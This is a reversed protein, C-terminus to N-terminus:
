LPPSHGPRTADRHARYVGTGDCGRENTAVVNGGLEIDEFILARASNLTSSTSPDVTLTYGSITELPDLVTVTYGIETEWSVALCGCLMGLSRTTAFFDASFQVSHEGNITIGSVDIGAPSAPSSFGGGSGAARFTDLSFNSFLKDGQQITDKSAILSDLPIAQVVSAQVSIFALILTLIKVKMPWEQLKNM